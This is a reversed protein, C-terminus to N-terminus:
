PLVTLNAATIYAINALTSGSVVFVVLIPSGIGEKPGM